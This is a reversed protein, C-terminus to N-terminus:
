RAMGLSGTDIFAQIRKGKQIVTAPLFTQGFISQRKPRMRMASLFCYRKNQFAVQHVFVAATINM